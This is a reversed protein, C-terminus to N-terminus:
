KGGQLDSAVDIFAENLLVIEQTVVYENDEVVGTVYKIQLIYTQEIWNKTDFHQIVRFNYEIWDEGDYYKYVKKGNINAYFLYNGYYNAKTDDNDFLGNYLLNINTWSFEDLYFAETSTFKKSDVPTLTGDVVVYQKSIDVIYDDRFEGDEKYRASSVTFILRPNTDNKYIMFPDGKSNSINFDLSFLSGRTAKLRMPLREM